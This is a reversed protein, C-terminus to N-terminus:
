VNPTKDPNRFYDPSGMRVLEWANNFVSVVTAPLEPQDLSKINTEVQVVSSAGILIGDGYESHLQSHHVLWRFAAESLPIDVQDCVDLLQELAEFVPEKWYRERYNPRVTFRGPTPNSQFDRYKGTLIGGALPNYAYFSMGLRRLAPILEHEVNRSIGNYLGQYVQPKPWGNRECRHWIDVVEWAAFNSLGLRSFRKEAHLGACAQLTEDVPTDLSPFHLYLTDVSDCKLRDLSELIQLRVSQADLRGSVRPNVKTAVRAPSNKGANLALGLFRESDGGNYVYATDIERHGANLFFDVMSRSDCLDVQPGFNMTGLILKV